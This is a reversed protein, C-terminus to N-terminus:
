PPQSRWVAESSSVWCELEKQVRNRCWFCNKTRPERIQEPHHILQSSLLSELHSDLHTRCDWGEGDGVLMSGRAALGPAVLLLPLQHNDSACPVAARLQPAAAGAEESSKPSIPLLAGKEWSGGEERGTVLGTKWAM